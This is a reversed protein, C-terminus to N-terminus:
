WPLRISRGDLWALVVCGVVIGAVCSGLIVLVAHM